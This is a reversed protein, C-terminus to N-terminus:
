LRFVRMSVMAGGADKLLKVTVERPQMGDPLPLSGSYHQYGQISISQPELSITADRGSKSGMVTLQAVGAFTPDSARDRTFLVHYNLKGASASFVGARIAIANGRPDPPVAKLLLDLDKKLPEVNNLAQQMKETAVRQEAQASKMQATAQALQLAMAERSKTAQDLGERLSLSEPLSLRPPLVHQEVYYLGGAGIVIGSLILWVWRPIAKGRRQQGFPVPKFTSTKSSGFM